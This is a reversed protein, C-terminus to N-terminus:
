IADTNSGINIGRCVIIGHAILLIRGYGHRMRVTAYFLLHCSQKGLLKRLHAIYRNRCVGRILALASSFGPLTIIRGVPDIIYAAHYVEQCGEGINVLVPDRRKSDAPAAAICQSCGLGVLPDLCHCREGHEVGASHSSVAEHVAIRCVDPCSQLLCGLRPVLFQLIFYHVFTVIRGHRFFLKTSEHLFKRCTQVPISYFVVADRMRM